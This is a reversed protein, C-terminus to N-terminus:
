FRHRFQHGGSGARPVRPPNIQPPCQQRGDASAFRQANLLVPTGKLFYQFPTDGFFFPSTSNADWFLVQRLIEGFHRVRVMTKPGQLAYRYARSTSKPSDLM